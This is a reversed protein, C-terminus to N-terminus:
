CSSSVNIYVTKYKNSENLECRKNFTWIIYHTNLLRDGRLLVNLKRVEFMLYKCGM